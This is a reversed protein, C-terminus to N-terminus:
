TLTAPPATFPANLIQIPFSRHFTQPSPLASPGSLFTVTVAVNWLGAQPGSPVMATVHLESSVAVVERAVMNFNVTGPFPAITDMLNGNVLYRQISGSGVVPAVVSGLAGITVTMSVTIAFPSSNIVGMVLQSFYPRNFSRGSVDILIDPIVGSASSVPSGPILLAARSGTAALKANIAAAIVQYRNFQNQYISALQYFYQAQQGLRTNVEQVLPTSVCPTCFDALILRHPLAPNPILRMCGDLGLVASGFQDPAQGSITMVEALDPCVVRESPDVASITMAAGAATANVYKDFSVEVDNLLGNLSTVRTNEVNCVDPVFVAPNVLAAYGALAATSVIFRFSSGRGSDAGSLVTYTGLASSTMTAVSLVTAAGAMITVSGNFIAQPNFVTLAYPGPLTSTILADAFLATLAADTVTDDFPYSLTLNGALWEV